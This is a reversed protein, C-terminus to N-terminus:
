IIKAIFKQLTISRIPFDKNKKECADSLFFEM